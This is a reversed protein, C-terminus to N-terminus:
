QLLHHGCFHHFDTFDMVSARHLLNRSLESCIGDGNLEVLHWTIHPLHFNHSKQLLM